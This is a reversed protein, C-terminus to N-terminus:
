NDNARFDVFANVIITHLTRKTQRATSDGVESQRQLRATEATSECGM